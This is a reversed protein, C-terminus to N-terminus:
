EGRYKRKVWALAAGYTGFMAPLVLMLPNEIPLLDVTQLFAAAFSLLTVLMAAISIAELQMKQELEDSRLLLRLMARMVFGIPVVPLLVLLAKLPAAHVHKLMPLVSLLIVFYALMAPMFERLYRRQQTRMPEDSTFPSCILWVVGVVVLVVGFILVSRLHVLLWVGLVLLGIAVAALGAVQLFRRKSWKSKLTTDSM